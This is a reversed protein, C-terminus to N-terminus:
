KKGLFVNADPPVPWAHPSPPKVAAAWRQLVRRHPQRRAMEQHYLDSSWGALVRAHMKERIEAHARDEGLDQFEHPDAELDFLQPRMGDFHVLKWRGQRVMRMSPESHTNMPYESFTENAWASEKGEVLPLLSKGGAVGSNGAGCLEEITPRLDIHSVIERVRRGPRIRDPWSILLPVSVSGEYFNFKWWLGNEGAMEGHDTTYIVVTNRDLGSERLADLVRGVARDLQAVMGYYAARAARIETASLDEIGRNKRWAQMAPHLKEFYGPPVEPLTVRDRYTDWDNQSCIFPPHPLLMGALVCFPKGPKQAQARLFGATTTAVDESFVNYATSGPGALTVGQKSDCQAGARMFPPLILSGGPWQPGPMGVMLNQFGHWQDPGLFHMHGILTTEYGAAGLSHAFTTTDSPLMDGNSWTKHEFPHQGTLLSMKSPVSVPSQCYAHEFVVGRHALGDLNPTVIVPDGYCGLVHPSHQDSMLILFNPRSETSAPAAPAPSASVASSAALDVLFERRRV